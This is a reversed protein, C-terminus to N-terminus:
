WSVCFLSNVWVTALNLSKPGFSKTIGLLSAKIDRFGINETIDCHPFEPTTISETHHPGVDMMAYCTAVDSIHRSLKDLKPRFVGRVSILESSYGSLTTM